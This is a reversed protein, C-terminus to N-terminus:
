NGLLEGLVHICSYSAEIDYFFSHSPSLMASDRPTSAAACGAPRM